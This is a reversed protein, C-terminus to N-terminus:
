DNDDVRRRVLEVQRHGAGQRSQGTRAARYAVDQTQPLICAPPGDSRLPQPHPDQLRRAAALCAEPYGQVSRRDSSGPEHIIAKLAARKAAQNAVLKRRRKNKEVASTKAMDTIRRRREDNRIVSPVPLQVRESSGPSRRRKATTCVIIDMGWMQDVKDYNIEPFVIHEKIGMAFNGRGDFSKPNLGRFDRVRPLAINVLRDLFEYMRAGRLTVKAGIPMGERLKFGAISNRARTIVPKQGASRPWTPQPLRPSRPTARRNVSAWTSSSRRWAEPDADRQRVLVTEQLAKRIREVYEKKLRPEYKAEAM